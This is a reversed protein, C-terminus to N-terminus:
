AQTYPREGANGGMKKSTKLPVAGSSAAVIWIATERPVRRRRARAETTGLSSAEIARKIDSTM